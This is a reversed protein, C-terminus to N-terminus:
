TDHVTPSIVETASSTSSSSATCTSTASPATPFSVNSFTMTSKDNYTGTVSATGNPAVVIVCAAGLISSQFTAGAKPITLKAGDGSNPESNDGTTADIETLAWSGNTANTHVTDTGGLSDTCGSITPPGIKIKLGSSPIKGSTSFTTCTVTIPSSDITGVATFNTGSKLAGKEVTGAPRSFGDGADNVHVAYVTSATAALLVFVGIAGVAVKRAKFLKM